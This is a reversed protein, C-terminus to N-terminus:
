IKSAAIKLCCRETTAAETIQTQLSSINHQFLNTMCFKHLYTFFSFVCVFFSLLFIQTLYDVIVALGSKKKFTSHQSPGTWNSMLCSLKLISLSAAWLQLPNSIQHRSSVNYAHTHINRSHMMNFAKKLSSVFFFFIFM